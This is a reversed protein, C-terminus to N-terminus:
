SLPMKSTKPLHKRELYHSRSGSSLPCNLRKIYFLLGFPVLTQTSLKM